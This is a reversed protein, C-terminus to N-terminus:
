GARSLSSCSPAIAESHPMDSLLRRALYRCASARRAPISDRAGRALPILRRRDDRPKQRRSLLARSPVARRATASQQADKAAAGRIALQVVLELAVDRQVDLIQHPASDLRALGVPERQRPKTTDLAHFLGIAISM